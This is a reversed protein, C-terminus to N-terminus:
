TEGHEATPWSGDRTFRIVAGPSSLMTVDAPADLDAPDPKFMVRPAAASDFLDAAIARTSQTGDAEFVHFYGSKKSGGLLREGALFEVGGLKSKASAPLSFRLWRFVRANEFKVEGWGPGTPADKIEVLTVYGEHRSVNSGEIKAGVFDHNDADKKCEFRVRNCAASQGAAPRSPDAAESPLPSIAALLLILAPLHLRLNM